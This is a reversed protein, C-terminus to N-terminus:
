AVRHTTDIVRGAESEASEATRLSYTLKGLKNCSSCFWDATYGGASLWITVVYKCGDVEHDLRTVVKMFLGIIQGHVTLLLGILRDPFRCVTVGLYIVELNVASLKEGSGRRIHCVSLVQSPAPSYGGGAGSLITFFGGPSLTGSVNHDSGPSTGNASTLPGCHGDIAVTTTGANYFKVAIGGISFYNNASATAVSLLVAVCFAYLTKM